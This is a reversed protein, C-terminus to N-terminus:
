KSSTVPKGAPKAALPRAAASEDLKFTSKEPQKQKLKETASKVPAKAKIPEETSESALPTTTVTPTSPATITPSMVASPTDDGKEKALREANRKKWEALKAARAAQKDGQQKEADKKDDRSVSSLRDGRRSEPAPTTTSSGPRRSTSRRRRDDGDRDRIRDDRRYRDDRRDRSRDRRGVPSRSRRRDRRDDRRERGGRDRERDRPRDDRRSSGSYRDSYRERSRDRRVPSRSRDRRPPSYRGRDYRSSDAHRTAM